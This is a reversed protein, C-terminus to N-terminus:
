AGIESGVTIALPEMTIKAGKTRLEDMTAQIDDVDM